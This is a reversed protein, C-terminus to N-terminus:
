QSGQPDLPRVEHHGATCTKWFARAVMPDWTQAPPQLHLWRSGGKRGTIFAAIPLTM